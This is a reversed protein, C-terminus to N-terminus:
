RRVPLPKQAVSDPPATAHTVSFSVTAPVLGWELTITRESPEVILRASDALVSVVHEGPSINKIVEGTRGHHEGDVFVLGTAGELKVVLKPMALNAGTYVVVALFFFIYMLVTNQRRRLTNPSVRRVEQQWRQQKQTLRAEEEARHRSAERRIHESVFPDKGESPVRRKPTNM